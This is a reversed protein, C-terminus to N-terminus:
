PQQTKYLIELVAQEESTTEVRKISDGKYVRSALSRIKAPKIKLSKGIEKTAESIFTAEGQKRTMAGVVENICDVLRKRDEPSSPLIGFNDHDEIAM